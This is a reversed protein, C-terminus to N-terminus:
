FTKFHKQGKGFLPMCRLNQICTIHVFNLHKRQTEEISKKTLYFIFRILAPTSAMLLVVKSPLIFERAGKSKDGKNELLLLGSCTFIWDIEDFKKSHIEV